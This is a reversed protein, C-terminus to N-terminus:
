EALLLALRVTRDLEEVPKAAMIRRPLKRLKIASPPVALGNKFEVPFDTVLRVSCRDAITAQKM